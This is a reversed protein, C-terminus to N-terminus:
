SNLFMQLGPRIQNAMTHKFANRKEPTIKSPFAGDEFFDHLIETIIDTISDYSTTEVVEEFLCTLAAHIIGEIKERQKYLEDCQELTLGYELVMKAVTKYGIEAVSKQKNRHDIIVSTPIFGEVCVRKELIPIQSFNGTEEPPIPKTVM